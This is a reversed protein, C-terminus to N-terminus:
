HLVSTTSSATHTHTNRVNNYISDRTIDPKADDVRSDARMDISGFRFGLVLFGEETAGSAGIEDRM